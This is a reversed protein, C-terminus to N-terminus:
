PTVGFDAPDLKAAPVAAESVIDAAILPDLVSKGTDIAQQIAFGITVPRRGPAVEYLDLAEGVMPWFRAIAERLPLSPRHEQAVTYAGFDPSGVLQATRRCIEHVRELSVPAGHAHAAGLALSLLSHQSEMLLSNPADGFYYTRGEKTGVVMMGIDKPTQGSQRLAHQVAVICSFGGCAGLVALLDEIRTGLEPTAMRYYLGDFLGRAAVQPRVLLDGKAEERRLHDLVNAHGPMESPRPQPAATNLGKRGFM